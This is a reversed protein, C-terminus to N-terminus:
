KIKCLWSLLAIVYAMKPVWKQWAVTYQKHFMWLLSELTPQCLFTFNDLLLTKKAEVPWNNIYEIKKLTKKERDPDSIVIQRVTWTCLVMEFQCPLPCHAGYKYICYQAVCGIFNRFNMKLMFFTNPTLWSLVYKRLVSISVISVCPLKVKYISTRKTEMIKKRISVCFQWPLLWVFSAQWASCCCPVSACVSPPPRPRTAGRPPRPTGSRTSASARGSIMQTCTSSTTPTRTKRTRSSTGWKLLNRRTRASTATRARTATWIFCHQLDLGSCCPNYATQSQKSEPTWLHILSLSKPIFTTLNHCLYTDICTYCKLSAVVM